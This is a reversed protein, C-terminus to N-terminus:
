QFYESKVFSLTPGLDIMEVIEAGCFDEAGSRFKVLRFVLDPNLQKVLADMSRISGARCWTEITEDDMGLERAATYNPCKTCKVLINRPSVQVMKLRIGLREYAIRVLPAVDRANFNKIRKQQKMLYGQAMGMKVMAMASLELTRTMGIEEAVAQVFVNHMKLVTKTRSFNEKITM